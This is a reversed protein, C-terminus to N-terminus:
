AARQAPIPAPAQAPGTRRGRRGLRRTMITTMSWLIMAESSAPLREYDRALRRSRSLWAFTREVIWRKPLVVFGKHDDSRRIVTLMLNLATACWGVLMGTYGSDAWARRLRHHEQTARALLDQAAARDGTSAPTVMVALILGLTDVVIHRKRGKIKKGADYGSTAAWVTSTGRASQSDIVGATPEADRGHAERTAARLRDHFEGILGQERWRTFFRHVAKWPPYDAPLAPWKVGNDVVYRIADLIDRHCYEEPRGGRGEGWAPVPLVARVVAWEADTM